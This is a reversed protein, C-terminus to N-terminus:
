QKIKGVVIQKKFRFAQYEEKLGMNIQKCLTFKGTKRGKCM